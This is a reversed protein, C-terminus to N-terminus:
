VELRRERGVGRTARAEAAQGAFGLPAGPAPAAREEHRQADGRGAPVVPRFQGREQRRQRGFQHALAEPPGRLPVSAAISVMWLEIVTLCSGNLGSTSPFTPRYTQPM